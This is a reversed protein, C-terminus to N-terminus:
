VMVTRQYTIHQALLKQKGLSFNHTFRTHELQFFLYIVKNVLTVLDSTRTSNQGTCRAPSLGTVPGPFPRSSQLRESLRAASTKLKPPPWPTRVAAPHICKGDGPISLASLQNWGNVQDQAANPHYNPLPAVRRLVTSRLFFFFFTYRTRAGTAFLLQGCRYWHM